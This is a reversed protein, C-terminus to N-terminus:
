GPPMVSEATGRAIGTAAGESPLLLNMRRRADDTAAAMMITHINPRAAPPIYTAVRDAGSLRILAGSCIAGLAIAAGDSLGTMERSAAGLVLSM